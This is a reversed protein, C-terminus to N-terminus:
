VYYPPKVLCGLSPIMSFFPVHIYFILFSLRPIHDFVYHLLIYHYLKCHYQFYM